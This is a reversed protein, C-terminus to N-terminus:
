LYSSVNRREEAKMLKEEVDWATLSSGKKTKCPSTLKKPLPANRGKDPDLDISFAMGASTSRPLNCTAEGTNQWSNVSSKDNHHEMSNPKPKVNNNECAKTKNQKTEVAFDKRMQNSLSNFHLAVRRATDMIEKSTMKQTHTQKQGTALM